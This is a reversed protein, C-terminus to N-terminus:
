SAAGPEHKERQCRLGQMQQCLPAMLPPPSRHVRAPLSEASPLKPHMEPVDNEMTVFPAPPPRHLSLCLQSADAQFGLMREVSPPGGLRAALSRDRSIGPAPFGHLSGESSHLARHGSCCRKRHTDQARVPVWARDLAAAPGHPTCRLGRAAAAFCWLGPLPMPNLGCFNM